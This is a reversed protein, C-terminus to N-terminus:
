EVRALKIETVTLILNDISAHSGTSSFSCLLEDNELKHLTLTGGERRFSERNVINGDLRMVVKHSKQGLLALWWPSKLLKTRAISADGVYGTVDGNQDIVLMFAVQRQNLHESPITVKGLGAWRGVWEKPPKAEKTVDCATLMILAILLMSVLMLM